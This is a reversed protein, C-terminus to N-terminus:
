PTSAPIPHRTLAVAVVYWFCAQALVWATIRVARPRGPRLALVGLAIYALVGLVKATLWADVLPYQGLRWALAGASALLLTDNVHPVVRVWRDALRPSGRIMWLGRAVFLLYTIAVSALHVHKIALYSV